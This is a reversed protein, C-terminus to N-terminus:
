SVHFWNIIRKLYIECHSLYWGLDGLAGLPDGSAKVRIDDAFFEPGGKFSNSSNVRHVPGTLPDRITRLMSALRKHHM